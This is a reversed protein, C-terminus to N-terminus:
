NKRENLNWDYPLFEIEWKDTNKQIDERVDERLYKSIKLLIQHENPAFDEGYWDFIKSLYAKRKRFEFYNRVYSSLFRRAQDDLQRDLKYGEFAEERL